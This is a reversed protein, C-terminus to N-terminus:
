LGLTFEASPQALPVTVLIEDIALNAYFAVIPPTTLPALTRPVTAMWIVDRAASTLQTEPGWTTGSDTSAKCYLNLATTHTESGDSKGAYFVWWISNYTDLCIATMGQDDVSNLVVNTVETITSSDVIWCRLDANATDVASWAVLIHRTNTPDPAVAFNPFSNTAAVDTMSTAISTEAWSNASDDYLKRSIENASADWFIALMDQTDAADYDPLLIIQDTTALAEDVTRAADWAGNPVNANPLRFFGGEAGADICTKCYVNGGVARSISLHGGNAQSTGAFITTQTSLADSSETNITRYLTDNAGSETYACHILGASINSWRDYWISLNTATGAFVITPASWTLGGNTSKRFAVDLGSDIYVCYLVSSPTQVLYNTGGGSALNFGNTSAFIIDARSAM